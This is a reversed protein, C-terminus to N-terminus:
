ASSPMRSRTRDRPSPSTYLLCTYFTDATATESKLVGFLHVDRQTGDTCFESTSYTLTCDDVLQATIEYYIDALDAGTASFFYKGGTSDALETLLDRSGIEALGVAFIRIGAKKAAAAVKYMTTSGSSNDEGDTLLIIAKSETRPALINIASQVALWIGTGSALKVGELLDDLLKKDKTLAVEVRPNRAFSVLACEDIPSLEDIFSHLAGKATNWRTSDPDPDMSNPYFAMSLSKDLVLAAAFPRMPCVIQARQITGNESAVITTFTTDRVVRQGNFLKVKMSIDPFTTANLGTIRMAFSSDALGATLPFRQAQAPFLPLLVACVLLFRSAIRM